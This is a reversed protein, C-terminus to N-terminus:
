DEDSPLVEKMLWDVDALDVFLIGDCVFRAFTEIPIDIDLDDEVEGVQEHVRHLHGAAAMLLFRAGERAEPPSNLWENYTMRFRREMRIWKWWSTGMSSGTSRWIM